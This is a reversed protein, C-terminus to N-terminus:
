RHGGAAVKRVEFTHGSKETKQLGRMRRHAARKTFTAAVPVEGPPATTFIAERDVTGVYWRGDSRRIAHDSNSPRATRPAM